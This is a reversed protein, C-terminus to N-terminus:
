REQEMFVLYQVNWTGFSMIKNNQQPRPLSGTGNRPKNYPKMVLQKKCHHNTVGEGLGWAPPGGSIPQGRSSIGDVCHGATVVWLESIIAAGCHHSGFFEFSVQYPFNTIDAPEGGVIRGDNRMWQRRPIISAGYEHRILLLSELDIEPRSNNCTCNCGENLECNIHLRSLFSDMVRALMDRSIVSIEDYISVQLEAITEKRTFYVKEKLYDWLFFYPISLDSIENDNNDDCGDEHDDDNGNIEYYDKNDHIEGDNEGHDNDDNDDQISVYRM